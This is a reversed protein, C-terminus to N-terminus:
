LVDALAAKAARRFNASSQESAVYIADWESALANGECFGPPISATPL